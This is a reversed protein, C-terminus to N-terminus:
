ECARVNVLAVDAADTACVHHEVHRGEQGDGGQAADSTQLAIYALNHTKILFPIVQIGSSVHILLPHAIVQMCSCVRCFSCLLVLNSPEPTDTKFIRLHILTTLSPPPDFSLSVDLLGLQVHLLHRAGGGLARQQRRHLRSPLLHLGAAAPLVHLGAAVLFVLTVQGAPTLIIM